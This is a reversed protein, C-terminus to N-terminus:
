YEVKRFCWWHITPLHCGSPPDLALGSGELNWIGERHRLHVPLLRGKGSELAKSGNTFCAEGRQRKNLTQTHELWLGCELASCAVGSSPTQRPKPQDLLGSSPSQRSRDPVFAGELICSRLGSYGAKRTVPACHLRLVVARQCRTWALSQCM